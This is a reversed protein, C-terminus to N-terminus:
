CSGPSRRARGSVGPCPGLGVGKVFIKVRKEPDLSVELINLADEVQQPLSITSTEIANNPTLAFGKPGAMLVPVDTSINKPSTPRDSGM